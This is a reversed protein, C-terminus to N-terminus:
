DLGAGWRVSEVGKRTCFSLSLALSNTLSLSLSLSFTLSLYISLSLTTLPGERQKVADSAESPVRRARLRGM